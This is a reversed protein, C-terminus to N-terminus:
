NSHLVVDNSTVSIVVRRNKRRNDESNNPVIPQHEGYGIASLQRPNLGAQVMYAVVTAARAASLQWNDAYRGGNIPQDDTFGEINMPQRVYRLVKTLEYLVTESDPTLLATGPYFVLEGDLTIELWQHNGDISILRNEILQRFGDNVKQRIEIFTTEKAYNQDSSQQDGLSPLEMQELINMEPELGPPMSEKPIPKVSTPPANFIQVLTASLEQHRGEKANTAAFMLVFFAFLLTVFDAYSILWRTTHNSQTIGYRKM